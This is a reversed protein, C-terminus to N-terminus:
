LAKKTEESITRKPPKSPKVLSEIQLNYDESTQTYKLAYNKAYPKFRELLKEFQLSKKKKKFFM